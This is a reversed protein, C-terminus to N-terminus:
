PTLSLRHLFAAITERTLEATPRFSGDVYGTTIRHAKMWAIEGCFPATTPVDTFPASTCTPTPGDPNGKARYLLM